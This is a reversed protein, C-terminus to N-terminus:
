HGEGKGRSCGPDGAYGEGGGGRQLGSHEAACATRLLAERGAGLTTGPATGAGAAARQGAAAVRALGGAVRASAPGAGQVPGPGARAALRLVGPECTGVLHRGAALRAPPQERAIHVAADLAAVVACARLCALRQNDLTAPTRTSPPHSHRDRMSLPPSPSLPCAQRECECPLFLRGLQEKYDQLMICTM